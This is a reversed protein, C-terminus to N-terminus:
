RCKLNVDFDSKRWIGTDTGVNERSQGRYIDVNGLMGARLVLFDSMMFILCIRRIALDSITAIVGVEITVTVTVAEAGRKRKKKTKTERKRAPSM